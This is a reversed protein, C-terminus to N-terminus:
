AGTTSDTDPVPPAPEELKYFMVGIGMIIAYPAAVVLGNLGPIVRRTFIAATIFVLLGAVTLIAVRKKRELWSLNNVYHVVFGFLAFALMGFGNGGVVWALFVNAIDDANSIAGKLVFIVTLIVPSILVATLWVKIIYRLYPYDSFSTDKKLLYSNLLGVLVLFLSLAFWLYNPAIDKVDNTLLNPPPVLVEYVTIQAVLVAVGLCYIYYFPLGLGIPRGDADRGGSGVNVMDAPDRSPNKMFINNKRLRAWAYFLLGVVWLIVFLAKYTHEETM